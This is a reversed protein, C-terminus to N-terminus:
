SGWELSEVAAGEETLSRTVAASSNPTPGKVVRVGMVGM